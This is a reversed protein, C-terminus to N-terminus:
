KASTKFSLPPLAAILDLTQISVNVIRGILELIYRPQKIEKCWENPDNRIESDRNVTVAYREMIWEIPSKGNVHWDYARLPINIIRIVDNFNIVSKDDEGNSKGFRMQQVKPAASDNEIIVSPYPEISEYNLHLAALKKGASVFARFTKTDEVLPLRPLSKQLDAAFRERYAKAHLIGYVYYFIDEKTTRPGYEERARQLILDTIANRRAFEDEGNDFLSLADRDNKEYYYMPFCQGNFQLQVDPITDVIFPMFGKKTGVGPVCIVLNKSQPTPFIKPMQYVRENWECNFYLFQKCFPRYMAPTISAADFAKREGRNHAATTSYTWNIKTSDFVPKQGLNSNYFQITREMNATLAPKSYNYCWTDRQTKVGCSYYPVFFTKATKDEKTGIQIFTEFLGDRQNIWDGAENPAISSLGISASLMSGFDKITKLKDERTLYDGIDKYLIAALEDPAKKPKRVLITISIPTRSGEGFVNGSEKRRQEGSTRCNGRLNFVYISSFEKQLCKRFGDMANGDIWGANSIFAIIGGGNRKEQRDAEELRDTAWRFAKIYSDYLSNKNTAKSGAAYKTAIHRELEPYTQNQANDNASKQGVSYPPNGIIIRIPAKKQRIVRESNSHFMESFLKDSDDSEALQFTDTLCIGDFSRYNKKEGILDHYVNEINISAIYYALLVIENAHLENAYKRPLDKPKIIGSQLLRTMFTGTGTFPDLIHVNEDSLSRNFEKKLVDEVSRIIFDVCEVPTYVIGLKEAVKPFASKFFKDYLEVIVRQKGEANDIGACREKISKYFRAMVEMEATPVEEHLLDIMKQMSVSVPNNKVFSYDEFLAEFVPQTIIHQALMEVAEEHSVSPNLNKHLGEVFEDFAKKHPGDELVLRKIRAIHKEAIAAVDKAWLEWYRRTGVKKVMRAYIISQLETFKMSFELQVARREKERQAAEIVAGTDTDVDESRSRKSGLGPITDVIIRDSKRKNLDIKNIEANFRDDHARLANLVTWVVAFADSKDLAEEPSMDEPIIVPIIIYGYRKGGARRMVRGVSQVVDVQSNRSSLFIVSDLSPVDVGESLCRVNTLIHCDKSDAAVDNLWSLRRAREAAGMTGDVHCADIKVVERREAPTLSEYYTEKQANFVDTIHKSAKINQCFAVAKHMFGPDAKSVLEKDLLTRKSLANICGILKSVDDARVEGKETAIAEQFAAPIEKKTVTLVLVKYDSLLGQEVAKGFGIRYVEEGYIAVDDMSCLYADAEKAKDKVEDKYLRPTATMYIRKKGFVNENDHVLVFASDSDDKLTVGTTRHAEDCIILDFDFSHAVEKNLEKQAEIIRPLSQYTSFVVRMGPAKAKMLDLSHFQLKITDVDTSAPMALDEVSFGGYDNERQKKSVEADSCVCMPRIKKAAFTTWENLTQALLAISPVLFLVLGDSGVEKEAIKLSTYTKGTGCAMILRGRQETKFHEHFAKIADNQHELPERENLVVGAGHAGQELKGWDVPANILNRLGIIFHKIPLNKFSEIANASFKDTTAIWVLQSFKTPQMNEDSFQKMATTIFTDVDAKQIYTDAKYCKCQIAWYQGDHTKAVLDIGVDHGSGFDRRFPFDHWLWIENFFMAYKPDSWLYERMLEEFRTGKDAESFSERRYKELVKTFPTLM